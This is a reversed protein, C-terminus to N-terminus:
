PDSEAGTEMPSWVTMGVVASTSPRTTSTFDAPRNAPCDTNVRSSVLSVIFPREYLRCVLWHVLDPLPRPLDVAVLTPPPAATPAIRPPIKPPPLPAAM